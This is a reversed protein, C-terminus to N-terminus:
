TLSSGHLGVKAFPSREGQTLPTDESSLRWSDARWSQRQHLFSGQGQDSEKWPSGCGTISPFAYSSLVAMKVGRLWLRTLWKWNQAECPTAVSAQSRETYNEKKEKRGCTNIGLTSRPLCEADVTHLKRTTQIGNIGGTDPMPSLAKSAAWCKMGLWFVTHNKALNILGIRRHFVECKRFNFSGRKIAKQM